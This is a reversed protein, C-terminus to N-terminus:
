FPQELEFSRIKETYDRYEQSTITDVTEMFTNTEGIWSMKEKVGREGKRNKGFILEAIGKMSEGSSSELIGYYEPRHLFIVADADQELSGSEKLDSLQPAKDGRKETERSLQALGIVTIDLEKAVTKLGRSIFGIEEHRQKQNTGSMLQIYDVIVIKVGKQEVIEKVKSKFDTISLSAQDYLYLPSEKIVEISQKVQAKEVDSLDGQNIKKIGIGSHSSLIRTVLQESSMELSFFATPVKAYVSINKAITTVFATKGMSPRAAIIVFDKKNFGLLQKDLSAMGSPIGTIQNPNLLKENISEELRDMVDKINDEKVGIRAKSINSEIMHSISDYIEVIDKRGANIYEITKESQNYLDDEMKFELLILFINQLGATTSTNNTITVIDILEVENNPDKTCSNYIDFLSIDYEKKLNNKLANIIQKHKTFYFFTEDTKDIINQAEKLEILVIGLFDEEIKKRFDLREENIHRM